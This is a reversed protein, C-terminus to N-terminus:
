QNPIFLAYVFVMQIIPFTHIGNTVFFLLGFIPFLCFSTLFTHHVSSALIRVKVVIQVGEFALTALSLVNDAHDILVQRYWHLFFRGYYSDYDGRECFFGTEHPKSNYYGANDPGKAWFSHGRSTAAKRLNQLSYKDYCQFLYFGILPDMLVAYHFKVLFALLMLTDIVSIIPSNLSDLICFETAHRVPEVM